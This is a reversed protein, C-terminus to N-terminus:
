KKERKKSTIVWLLLGVGILVSLISFGYAEFWYTIEWTSGLNWVFGLQGSFSQYIIIILGLAILGGFIKAIPTANGAEDQFKFFLGLLVMAVVMISLLVGMRPFIESFFYSVFNFQLAMLGISLSLIVNVAKNGGFLNTKELIAFILAFILLFPLVYSFVGAQEWQFLLNGVAGGTGVGYSLMNVFGEIM